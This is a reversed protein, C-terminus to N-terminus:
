SHDGPADEWQHWSSSGSNIPIFSMDLCKADQFLAALGSPIRTVVGNSVDLGASLGFGSMLDLLTETRGADLQSQWTARFEVNFDGAAYKSYGALAHGLM